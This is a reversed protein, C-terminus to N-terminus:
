ARRLEIFLCSGASPESELWIRSHMWQAARRAIAMGVGTGPYAQHSHLRFFLDFIREHHRREIGIGHDRVKAIVNAGDDHADIEIRPSEGPQTYLLANGVLEGLLQCLPRWSARVAPLSDGVIVVAKRQRIEERQEVLVSRIADALSVTHLPLPARGINAFELLRRITRQMRSSVASIRQPANVPEAHSADAGDLIIQAFANITLLPCLLEHSLAQSLADWDRELERAARERTSDRLTIHVPPPSSGCRPAEARSMLQVPHPENGIWLTTDFCSHCGAVCGALHQKLAARESPALYSELLRGHPRVSGSRLLTEAAANAAVIEGHPDLVVHAAPLHEFFDYYRRVSAELQSQMERMATQQTELQTRLMQVEAAVAHDETAMAGLRTKEADAPRDGSLHSRSHSTM